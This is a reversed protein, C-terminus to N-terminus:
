LKENFINEFHSFLAFILAIPILEADVVWPLNM